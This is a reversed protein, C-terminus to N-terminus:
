KQMAQRNSSKSTLKYPRSIKCHYKEVRSHNRNIDGEIDM